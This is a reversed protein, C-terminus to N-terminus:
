APSLSSEAQWGTFIPHKGPSPCHERKPCACHGDTIWWAPFTRIEREALFLAITRRCDPNAYFDGAQGAANLNSDPTEAMWGEGGRVVPTHHCGVGRTHEAIRDRPRSRLALGRPQM